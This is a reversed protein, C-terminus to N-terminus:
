FAVGSVRLHSPAVGSRVFRTVLGDDSLSGRRGSLAYGVEVRADSVVPPLPAPPTPQAAAVSACLACVVAVARRWAAADGCFEM